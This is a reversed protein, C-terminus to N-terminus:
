YSRVDNKIDSYITTQLTKTPIPGLYNTLEAKSPQATMVVTVHPQVLTGTAPDAEGFAKYPDELPAIHFKLNTINTRLPSIPIFGDYVSSEDKATNLEDLPNGFILFEDAYDWIDTLDDGDSDRGTLWLTSLVTETEVVGDIVREVEELALIQKRDGRDNILYLQDQDSTLCATQDIGGCFANANIPDADAPNQGTNRDLTTRDIVCDSNAPTGDNCLVGPAGDSGFNYFQSGYDGYVYAGSGYLNALEEDEVSARYYEEYDIANDEILITVQRMMARMDQYLQEQLQIRRSNRYLDITLTVLSLMFVSFITVTIILEVLTFGKQQKLNRM